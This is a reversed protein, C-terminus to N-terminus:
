WTKCKWYKLISFLKSKQLRDQHFTHSLNCYANHFIDHRPVICDYQHYRGLHNHSQTCLNLICPLNIYQIKYKNSIQYRNVHIIFPKKKINIHKFHTFIITNMTQRAM